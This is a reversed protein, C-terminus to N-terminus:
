GQLPNVRAAFGVCAVHDSGADDVTELTEPVLGKASRATAARYNIAWAPGLFRERARRAPAMSSSTERAFCQPDFGETRKARLRVMRM